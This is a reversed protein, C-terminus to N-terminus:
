PTVTTSSHEYTTSKRSESQLGEDREEQDKLQQMEQRQQEMDKQQQELLAQTQENDAQVIEIENGLAAGGALGIGGGIGAGIVTGVGPVVSGILAGSGAGVVGGGLTTGERPTLPQSGCGATFIAFMLAVVAMSFTKVTNM